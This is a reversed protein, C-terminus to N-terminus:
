SAQAIVLTQLPIRKIAMARKFQLGAGSLWRQVDALQYVASSSTLFFHLGLLSLTSPEQPSDPTLLELIALTGGPALANALRKVLAVNQPNNLHHVIQFALIGEYPGELPATLLDGDVHRVRDSMGERAIIKRGARASGPLDLVTASLTPHRRCLEAAFWGHAGAVDLLHQPRPPLPVARAVEPAALRALEFMAEIYQDWRPDEPPYRHIDIGDGSRVSEELHNWWEWQAYNFDLFRDVCQSSCPDLWRRARKELHWVGRKNRALRLAQLSELLRTLGTPDLDLEAALREATAPARALAAYVGLRVGAMVVRSAMMGFLAQALPVPGWNLWLAIREMFGEAKLTLEM